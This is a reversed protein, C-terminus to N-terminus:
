LHCKVRMVDITTTKETVATDTEHNVLSLSQAESLDKRSSRALLLFWFVAIFRMELLLIDYAALPYTLCATFTTGLTVLLL